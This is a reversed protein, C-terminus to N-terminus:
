CQIIENLPNVCFLSISDQDLYERTKTKNKSEM